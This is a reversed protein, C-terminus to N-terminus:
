RSPRGCPGPCRKHEACEIAGYLDQHREAAMEIAAIDEPMFLSHAKRPADHDSRLASRDGEERDLLIRAADEMYARSLVERRELLVLHGSLRVENDLERM